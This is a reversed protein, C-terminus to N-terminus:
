PQGPDGRALLDAIAWIRSLLEPLERSVVDWVLDPDVRFYAHAVVDRFGAILSWPVDADLAWIEQPLRKVAEGIVELHHLM